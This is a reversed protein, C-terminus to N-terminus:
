CLRLSEALRYHCLCRSGVRNAPDMPLRNTARQWYLLLGIGGVIRASLAISTEGELLGLILLSISRGGILVTATSISNWISAAMEGITSVFAAPQMYPSRQQGTM